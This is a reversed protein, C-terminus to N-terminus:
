CAGAAYPYPNVAAGGGPRVEFHLHSPGGSANGTNGVYGIVTGAAVRGAGQGAFSSLHMGIYTIGDDGQLFWTLGGGSIERQELTGGIPAVTPTGYGAMMDVGVHSHGARAAGWSDVFSVPGQVPCVLAAGGKPAAVPPPTPPPPPPPAPAATTPPAPPATTPPATTPPPPPPAPTTVTPPREAPRPVDAYRAGDPTRRAAVRRADRLDVADAPRGARAGALGSTAILIALSGAVLTTFRLHRRM